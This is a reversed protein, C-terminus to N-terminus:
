KVKKGNLFEGEYKTDSASIYTGKVHPKGDKYDGEYKYGVKWNAPDM